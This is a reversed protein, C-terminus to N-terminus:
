APSENIDIAKTINVSQSIISSTAFGYCKGGCVLYWSVTCKVSLRPVGEACPRGCILIHPPMTVLRRLQAQRRPLPPTCHEPLARPCCVCVVSGDGFAVRVRAWAAVLRHGLSARVRARGRDGRSDGGGGVGEVGDMGGRIGTSGSAGRAGTLGRLGRFGFTLLYLVPSCVTVCRVVSLKM